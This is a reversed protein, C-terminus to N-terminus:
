AHKWRPNVAPTLHRCRTVVADAGPSGECWTPATKLPWPPLLSLRRLEWLYAFYQLDLRCCQEVPWSAPCSPLSAATTPASDPTPEAQPAYGIPQQQQVAGLCQM